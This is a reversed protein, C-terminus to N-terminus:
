ITAYYREAKSILHHAKVPVENVKIALIKANNVFKSSVFNKSADTAIINPPSVYM